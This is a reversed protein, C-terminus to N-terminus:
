RTLAKGLAHAHIDDRIVERVVVVLVRFATTRLCLAPKATLRGSIALDPRSRLAHHCAQHRIRAAEDNPGVRVGILLHTAIRVDVWRFHHVETM